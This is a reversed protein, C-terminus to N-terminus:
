ENSQETIQINYTTNDGEGGVEEMASNVQNTYSIVLAM